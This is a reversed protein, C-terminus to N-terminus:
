APVSRPTPTPAPPGDPDSSREEEWFSREGFRQIQELLHSAEIERGTRELSEALRRADERLGPLVDEQFREWQKRGTHRAQRAAEEMERRFREVEEDEALDELGGLFEELHRTFHALGEEANRALGQLAESLETLDPWPQGSEGRVRADPPLPRGPERGPLVALLKGGQSERAPDPRLRFRCTTTILERHDPHIRIGVRARGQDDLRVERVRGIRVGRYAVPDGSRLGDVRDFEVDIELPREGCAVTAMLLILTLRVARSERM